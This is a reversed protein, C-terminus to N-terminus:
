AGRLGRGHSLWTVGVPWAGAWWDRAHDCLKSVVGWVTWLGVQRECGTSWAGSAPWAGSGAPWMGVRWECGTSWPWAGVPWAGVGPWAWGVGSAAQPGEEARSAQAAHCVPGLAGRLPEPGSGWLQSTAPVGPADGCPQPSVPEGHLSATQSGTPRLSWKGEVRLARRQADRAQGPDRRPDRLGTEGLSTPMLGGGACGDQPGPPGTSRRM